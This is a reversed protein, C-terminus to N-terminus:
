RPTSCSSSITASNSWQRNPRPPAAGLMSVAICASTPQWCTSWRCGSAIMARAVATSPGSSVCCHKPSSTSHTSQRRGPKWSPRSMDSSCAACGCAIPQTSPPWPRVVHPPGLSSHSRRLRSTMRRASANMESCPRGSGNPGLRRRGAAAAGLGRARGRRRLKCRDQAADGGGVRRHDAVVVVPRRARSGPAPRSAARERREARRARVVEQARLHRRQDDVQRRGGLQRHM